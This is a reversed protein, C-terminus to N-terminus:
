QVLLAYKSLIDTIHENSTRVFAGQRPHDLTFQSATDTWPEPSYPSCAQQRFSTCKNAMALILETNTGQEHVEDVVLTTYKSLTSDREMYNIATGDTVFTLRSSDAVHKASRVHYGVKTGIKSHGLNAVQKTAGITAIRRPQTCLIKQSKGQRVVDLTNKALLLTKGSGTPGTVIVIRNSKFIKM